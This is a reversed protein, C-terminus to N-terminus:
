FFACVSNGSTNEDRLSLLLRPTALPWEAVKTEEM